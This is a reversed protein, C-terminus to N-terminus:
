LYLEPRRDLHPHNRPGTRKDRAPGLDVEAVHVCPVPGSAPGALLAGEPSIVAAGGVWDVGREVGCRDAVVVAMHNVMATAQAKVVESPTPEGRVPEAPWNTPVALVDAGALAPIRSWEPFELDYCVVTAVRGIATDVVPPVADGPTFFDPEADWLHAKRYTARLGTRDIIVSSNYLTERALEALGGVVVLDFERALRTWHTVTDGDLSEALSRAEAASEFVYGSVALEPVVVVQAGLAAAERIAEEVAEANATPRGVQLEVQCAAMVVVPGSAPPGSAAAIDSM